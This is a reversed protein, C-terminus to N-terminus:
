SFSLGYLLWLRSSALKGRKPRIAPAHQIHAAGAAIQSRDQRAAAIAYGADIRRAGGRPKGSEM